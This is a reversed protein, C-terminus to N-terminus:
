VTEPCRAKEILGVLAADIKSYLVLHAGQAPDLGVDRPEPAVSLVQREAALRGSSIRDQVDDGSLRFVTLKAVGIQGQAVEISDPFHQFLLQHADIM